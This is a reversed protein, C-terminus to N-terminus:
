SITVSQDHQSRAWVAVGLAGSYAHGDAELVQVGGLDTPFLSPLQWLADTICQIIFSSSAVGGGVIVAQPNLVAILNRLAGALYRAMDHLIILAHQDGQLAAEAVVQPTIRNLDGGCLTRMLTPFGQRIVRIAASAIAPGSAVTELCGRNGCGCCMGGPQVTMHGIEGAVGRSGLLLQHNVVLGGGVGTGLTIYIFDRFPRGAGFQKESYAAARADNLVYVPISLLDSLGQRLPYGTWTNPFNPMLEISGEPLRMVAPATVGIADVDVNLGRSLEQVVEHIRVLVADVGLEAHTPVTQRALCTCDTDVVVAKINTGGLDM